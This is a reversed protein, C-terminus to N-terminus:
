IKEIVIGAYYEVSGLKIQLTTGSQPSLLEVEPMDAQPSVVSIKHTAGQLWPPCAVQIEMPGTHNMTYAELDIDFNNVDIFLRGEAEDAYLTIGTRSSATSSVGVGDLADSFQPLLSARDSYALYYEMGTNDAQYQVHPHDLLAAISRGNSNLAFNGSEGLYKGTEGTIILRGGGSLWINLVAVDAPDFVDANPIVLLSLTDLTEATLKWEPVARYQVHLEGLATAWGWFGFQHPQADHNVFGRPTLQRLVSSSSYYIGVDAVPVRAGYIPAVQAAFEFFEANAKKNNSFRPNKPDFKPFAHTALMEYYVLKCLEPHSLEEEYHDNYLWVNVFRSRAHERALKYMPAFRGVPPSKFGVAGAALRWGMSFETSVMDLDGRCWGFNFGPMDNGAMLFDENGGERAAAKAARYYASLAESGAQRKFILYARWLPDDLWDSRNWLPDQLNVGDWGLKVAAAILHARIDFSAADRVRLERLEAATFGAALYDSFRAVSWEGFAKEVPYIGLSDWAGFNDNWVGDSGADVAQLISAYTYDSWLPCASDKRFYILSAYKDTAAVHVLSETAGNAYHYEDVVLEGLINKSFAADFVRSNRPDSEAGDYGTAITGDPYTMAPGGYRSHTRTYPRAFVEDDFFNQVGLWRVPGGGYGSWNWHNHLVPTLNVEDWPGLEAAICYSQGFAEFYSVQKVGAAHFAATQEARNAIGHRQFFTGWGPDAGTANMVVTGHYESVEEVSRSDMWLPFEDWWPSASLSGCSLLAWYLATSRIILSFQIRAMKM